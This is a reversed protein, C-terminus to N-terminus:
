LKGCVDKKYLVRVPVLCLCRSGHSVGSAERGQEKM